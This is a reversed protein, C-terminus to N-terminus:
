VKLYKRVSKISGFMGVVAGIILLLLSVYIVFNFPKVLPLMESFLHGGMANCLIVYGYITICIPIISGVIGIILGEFLFPLEITLNSAGVLRMIGIEKQRSYITLKITNGILFITVLVLAIVVGLTIKELIDFASIIEKVVGENYKVTEVNYLDNIKDAITEIDKIDNAYVVISDLLPNEDLYNLITKFMDNYNSLSDKEETKTIIKTEKVSDIMLIESNLNDIDKDTCDKKLYVIINMEDEINKTSNKINAAVIVTFAFIILTITVCLVSALSLSFNRTVSKLSDRISRFLIRVSKM